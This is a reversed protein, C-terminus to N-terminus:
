EAPAVEEEKKGKEEVEIASLDAAPVDETLEVAASVSAIVEDESVHYLEVGKPLVIDKVHIVSSLDVLASLDVVFEHPMAQPEGEISLEHMVKVLVHGAKLAPAEGEFSIPLKVHVKQGKQVIYFDVHIPTHKVPDMQVDHILANETGEATILSITSSEGASRFAKEFEIKDIFIPTSKAQAGYFVAPISGDKKTEKPARPSTTISITSTTM